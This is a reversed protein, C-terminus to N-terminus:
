FFFGLLWGVMPSVFSQLLPSSECCEAVEFSLHIQRHDNPFSSVSKKQYSVVKGFSRHSLSARSIKKEASIKLCM